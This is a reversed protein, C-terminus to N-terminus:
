RSEKVLRAIDEETLARAAPTLAEDVKAFYAEFAEAASPRSQDEVPAPKVM